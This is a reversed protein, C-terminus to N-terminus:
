PKIMYINTVRNLGFHTDLEDLDGIEGTNSISCYSIDIKSFTQPTDFPIWACIHLTVATTNFHTLQGWNKLPIRPDM